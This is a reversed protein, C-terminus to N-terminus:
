HRRVAACVDRSKLGVTHMETKWVADMEYLTWRLPMMQVKCYRITEGRSMLRPGPAHMIADAAAGTGTGVQMGGAINGRVDGRDLSLYKSHLGTQGEVSITASNPDSCFPTRGGNGNGIRRVYRAHDDSEMPPVQLDLWPWDVAM